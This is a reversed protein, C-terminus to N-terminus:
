RYITCAAEAAIGEKRGTFGLKETTTGKINIRSKDLKLIETINDRMEEIHPAIKPAQAIVTVDINGITYGEDALLGGVHELLKLSSIGKYKQDTDPFHRGIDGLAAAGLLADMLAHVLVDADSHGALGKEYPIDVGGLILKRGEEFKHVDFGTGVRYEMPIDERTTIKINAYDGAAISVKIGAREAVSADDTGYYGDDYAKKYADLLESLRFGQPTQVAFYESREVAFSGEASAKRLSDKMPVCAAAAGHSDTHELVSLITERSVFPRAGDHILVYETDPCCEKVFKLASYVSDQREAGGEAIGNLKKIGNEEAINRCLGEYDSGTVIYIDDIEDLTEFAKLTVAIVPKGGLDLFQKPVPGGMRRGKGAAAIIVATKKDNFM